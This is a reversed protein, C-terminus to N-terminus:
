TSTPLTRRDTGNSSSAVQNVDIDRYKGLFEEFATCLTLSFEKLADLSASVNVSKIIQAKKKASDSEDTVEITPLTSQGSYPLAVTEWAEPAILLEKRIRM